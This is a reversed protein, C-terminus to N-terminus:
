DLFTALTLPIAVQGHPYMLDFRPINISGENFGGLVQKDDIHRVTTCLIHKTIHPLFELALRALNSQNDARM